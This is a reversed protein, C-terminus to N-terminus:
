KNKIEILNIIQITSILILILFVSVEFLNDNLAVACITMGIFISHLIILIINQKKM